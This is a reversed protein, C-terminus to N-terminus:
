DVPLVVFGENTALTIEELEVVEAHMLSPQSSNVWNATWSSSGSVYGCGSIYFRNLGANGSATTNTHLTGSGYFSGTFSFRNNSLPVPTGRVIKYTGCGPVNVFIAFRNVYAKDPSVYFEVGQGRWFGAPGSPPPQVVVSQVNSWASNLTQGQWSRSARVRYYYTGAPKNSANWSTGSGTYRTTPTSFATDTAEQLTYTEALYAANWTVAYSGDGDANSIANLVPTDPIPPWRKLVLPLYINYHDPTPPRDIDLAYISFANVNQTEVYLTNGVGGRTYPGPEEIWDGDYRFVLLDNLPLANREAESFYFRVTANMPSTPNVDFCRKVGTARNACFQNGSIAVTVGSPEGTSTVSMTVPITVPNNNPDNNAITLTAYYNGADLGTADFTISVSRTGGGAITGSAPAQSLWATNGDDILFILSEVGTNNITLTRVRTENQPVSEHFSTPTVEINPAQGVIVLFDDTDSLGGPDTVRVVVTTQGTWGPTPDIHLYRNSEISVGADPHPVNDIVFTL